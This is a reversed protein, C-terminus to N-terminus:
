EKQRPATYYILAISMAGVIAIFLTPKGICGEIMALDVGVDSPFARISTWVAWGVVVALAGWQHRLRFALATGILLLVSPGSAFLHLAETILTAPIGNWDPRMVACVPGSWAAAPMAACLAAAWGPLRLSM